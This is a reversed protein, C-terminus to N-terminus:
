RFTPVGTEKKKDALGTIDLFLGSHRLFSLFQRFLVLLEQKHTMIRAMRLWADPEVTACSPVEHLFLFLFSSLYFHKFLVMYRFFIRSFHQSQQGRQENHSDTVVHLSMKAKPRKHRGPPSNMEKLSRDQRFRFSTHIINGLYLVLDISLAFINFIRIISKTATATIATGIGAIARTSTFMPM